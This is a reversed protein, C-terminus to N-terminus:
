SNVGSNLPFDGDPREPLAREPPRGELLTDLLQRYSVPAAAREVDRVSVPLTWSDLGRALVRDRLVPYPVEASRALSGLDRPWNLGLSALLGSEPIRQLSPEPPSPLPKAPGDNRLPSEPAHDAQDAQDDAREVPVEVFRVIQKEPRALLMVLLSGALTTMAALAVPWAWGGRPSPPRAGGASASAQGALFMLRQRDLRDARPSLAALAAEFSKLGPPLEEDAPRRAGPASQEAKDASLGEAHEKEGSM